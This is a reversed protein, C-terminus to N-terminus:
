EQSVEFEESLFTFANTQSEDGISYRVDTQAIYKGAENFIYAPHSKPYVFPKSGLGIIWGDYDVTANAITFYFKDDAKQELKLYGNEKLIIQLEEQLQEDLKEVYVGQGIRKLLKSRLSQHSSNNLKLPTYPNSNNNIQAVFIFKGGVNYISSVDMTESLDTRQNLSNITIETPECKGILGESDVCLGYVKKTGTETFIIKKDVISSSSELILEDDEITQNNNYDIGIQYKSIANDTKTGSISVLVELPLNGSTASVGLNPVPPTPIYEEIPEDEDEAPIDTDINVSVPGVKGIGGRSDTAEFYFDTSKELTKDLSIPETEEITEDIVGDKDYDIKLNYKVIEDGDSDTANGNISIPLPATGSIPDIELSAVPSKNPQSIIVEIPGDKGVAGQTDECQFSVYFTGESIPLVEDIPSEQSIEDVSEGNADTIFAKYGVIDKKGNLDEGDAKIILELKESNQYASGSISPAFNIPACNTLSFIIGAGFLLKKILNVM